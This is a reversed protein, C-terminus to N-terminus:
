TLICPCLRQGQINANSCHLHMRWLKQVYRRSHATRDAMGLLKAPGSTWLLTKHFGKNEM